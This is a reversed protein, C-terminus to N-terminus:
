QEVLTVNYPSSHSFCISKLYNMKGFLHVEQERTLLQVEYLSALYPPLGNPL